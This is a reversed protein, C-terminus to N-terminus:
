WQLHQMSKHWDRKMFGRMRMYKSARYDSIGNKGIELLEEDDVRVNAGTEREFLDGLKVRLM